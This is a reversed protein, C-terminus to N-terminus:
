PLRRYIDDILDMVPHSVGKDAQVLLGSSIPASPNEEDFKAPVFESSAAAAAHVPPPPPTCRRRRRRSTQPSPVASIPKSDHPSILVVLVESKDVRCITVVQFTRVLTTRYIVLDSDIQMSRVDCHERGIFCPVECRLYYDRARAAKDENQRGLRVRRYCTAEFTPVPFIPTGFTQVQFLCWCGNPVKLFTPKRLNPLHTEGSPSWDKSGAPQTTEWIYRAESSAEIDRNLMLRVLWLEVESDTCTGGFGVRHLEPNTATTSYSPIQSAHKFNRIKGSIIEEIKAQATRPRNRTTIWGVELSTGNNLCIGLDGKGARKRAPKM